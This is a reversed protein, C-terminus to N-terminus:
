AAQRYLTKWVDTPRWVEIGLPYLCRRHRWLSNLDTTLITPIGARLASRILVRDGADLFPGFTPVCDASLPSRAPEIPLAQQGDIVMSPQRILLPESDIDPHWGADLDNGFYDAWERWWRRLQAGKRNDLREFEVLSAESVVWPPRHFVAALDGLAVLESGLRSPFRRLIDEEVEDSMHEGDLAQSAAPCVHRPADAGSSPPTGVATISLRFGRRDRSAVTGMRGRRRGQV